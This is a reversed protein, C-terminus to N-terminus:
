AAPSPPPTRWSPTTSGTACGPGSWPASCAAAPPSARRARALVAFRGAALAEDPARVVEEVPAELQHPRGVRRQQVPAQIVAARHQRAEASNTAPDSHRAASSRCRNRGWPPNRGSAAARAPARRCACRSSRSLDERIDLALDPLHNRRALDVGDDVVDADGVAAEVQREAVVRGDADPSPSMRIESFGSSCPEVASYVSRSRLRRCSFNGSTTNKKSAALMVLWIRFKPRGAGM